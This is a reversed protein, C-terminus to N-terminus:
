GRRGGGLARAVGDAVAQAIADPSGLSRAELSVSARMTRGAPLVEREAMGAIRREVLDRLAAADTFGPAVGTVVVRDINVQWTTNAARDTM